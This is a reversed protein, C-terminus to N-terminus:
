KGKAVRRPDEGTWPAPAGETLGEEDREEGQHFYVAVDEVHRGKHLLLERVNGAVEDAATVSLGPEVLIDLDVWLNKGLRRTRIDGTAQVGGVSAAFARIKALTANPLGKDMLEQLNAFWMRGSNVLIFVSVLLGALPDCFTYGFQAAVIGVTVPISSILDTLNEHSNATLAPSNLHGGACSNLGFMLYNALISVGAILAGVPLPAKGSGAILAASSELLFVIGIGFLVGYVILSAIFEVKGHGYPHGRDKPKDSIRLSALVLVSAMADGLSHFGDVTLGVSGSVIGGIVKVGSLGLNGFLAIVPARKGCKVCKEPIM